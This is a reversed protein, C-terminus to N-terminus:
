DTCVKGMQTTTETITNQALKLQKELEAKAEQSGQLSKAQSSFMLLHMCIRM